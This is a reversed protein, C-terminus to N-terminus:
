RASEGPETRAFCSLASKTRVLLKADDAIVATAFAEDGLASVTLVEWDGKARVVSVTGDQSILCVLEVPLNTTASVGTGNPGRFRSWDEAAGADDCLGAVLLLGALSRLSPRGPTSATM